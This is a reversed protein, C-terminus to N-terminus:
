IEVMKLLKEKNMNKDDPSLLIGIQIAAWKANWHSEENVLKMRDFPAVACGVM